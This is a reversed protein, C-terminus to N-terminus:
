PLTFYFMAGKGIEGEAWVRGGHRTIIRQVTALGIGTGPFEDATHLRQFAGFLKGVYAMDFGAGNDRIFCAKEGDRVATGFDIRPHAEKGTFKFANGVLNEMAIKLLYPDGQVVIGEQVTVDVTRDPNDKQHAEAIERVMGSLDVPAHHFESKIIRSLKLMDDILFGMKQTAKCVRELYTKGKDDLKDGYDELLAQSFGDIGRLPERLDHSVSYSFAELEKNVTSLQATRDIVRQELELNLQNIMKESAQLEKSMQESRDRAAVADTMLNLAARRSQLQAEETQKRETIDEATSFLIEGQTTPIITGWYRAIINQGNKSRLSLEIGNGWGAQQVEQMMRMREDKSIWGLEISTKGIVEERSFKSVRCFSENVELYKGTSLASMTGMLPSKNFTYSLLDRSERLVIETQKRETIDQFFGSVKRHALDAKGFAHVSRLNGKATIIELELDFPEGQEIARQVARDIIPRSAPTYFNVGQDVTMRGTSDLEHIDYVTETWTQQKTEMDFEWGGIKGLKEAQALLDQSKQLAEASKARERFFRMRQQQWLLWAAVGAGFLLTGIQIVIQWLHERLPANIETLDRKAIIFWPSDPVALAAALVQVGRYDVGTMVGTQGLAVRVAPVETRTLPIRLAFATNTQHRLENLYLVDNGERRVLLTEATESPVPWRIIFPYLYEEPEIQLVLVGLPRDGDAADLLPVMIELRIKQDSETRYFDQLAVQRSRRAESAHEMVESSLAPLGAPASIRTVGQTDLLRIEGYRFHAKYKDIWSRVQQQADQDEPKELFRRVLASFSANKFLIGGDALREKRWQALEGVKLEAIASLQQEAETRFQQEYNRYYLYGGAVIGLALVFCILAFILAPKSDDGPLGRFLGGPRRALALWRGAPLAGSHHQLRTM